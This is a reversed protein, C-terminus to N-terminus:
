ILEAKRMNEIETQSVLSDDGQKEAYVDYYCRALSVPMDWAEGISIGCHNAANMAFHYQWPARFSKGDSEGRWHEPLEIYDSVYQKFIGRGTEYDYCKSLIAATAMRILPPNIIATANEKHSRSCVWVAHLLEPRSGEGSQIWGNELGSLIYSHSLSFPKLRMGFVRPPSAYYLAQFFADRM